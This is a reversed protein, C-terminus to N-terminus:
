CTVSTITAIRGGSSVSPAHGSGIEMAVVAPTDLTVLGVGGGEADLRGSVTYSNIESSAM